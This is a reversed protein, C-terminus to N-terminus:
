PPFEELCVWWLIAWHLTTATQSLAEPWKCFSEGRWWGLAWCTLCCELPYISFGTWPTDQKDQFHKQQCTSELQDRGLDDCTGIGFSTKLSSLELYHQPWGIAPARSFNRKGKKEGAYFADINIGWMQLLFCKPYDAEEMSDFIPLAQGQLVHAHTCSIDLHSHFGQLLWTHVCTLLLSVLVCVEACICACACFIM